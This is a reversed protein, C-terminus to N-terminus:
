SEIKRIIEDAQEHAKAEGVNKKILVSQVVWEDAEGLEGLRVESGEATELHLEPRVSRRCSRTPRLPFWGFQRM